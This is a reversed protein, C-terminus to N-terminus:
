GCYVTSDFKQSFAVRGHDAATVLRVDTSHGIKSGVGVGEPLNDTDSVVIVQAM